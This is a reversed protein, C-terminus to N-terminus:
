LVKELNSINLKTNACGNKTLFVGQGAIGMKKLLGVALKLENGCAVGVVGQYGNERLIKEACSGGPIVYVDYNMSKGIETARNVMCDKNCGNCKYSPVKPDFDAMCRRDMYARACHPILIAKRQAKEFEERQMRNATQVDLIDQVLTIAESFHLGTIEDIKFMRVLKKANNGMLNHLGLNCSVEFIKNFLGQSLQTIDYIFNYPMKKGRKRKKRSM